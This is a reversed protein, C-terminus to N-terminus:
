IVTWRLQDPFKISYNNKSKVSHYGLINVQGAQLGRRNERSIIAVSQTVILETIM